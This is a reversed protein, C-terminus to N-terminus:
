RVDASDGSPSAPLDKLAPVNQLPSDSRAPAVRRMNGSEDPRPSSVRIHPSLKVADLQPREARDLRGKNVTSEAPAPPAEDAARSLPAVVFIACFILLVRSVRM